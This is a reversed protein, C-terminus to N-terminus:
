ATNDTPEDTNNNEVTDGVKMKRYVKIDTGFMKNAREFCSNILDITNDITGTSNTEQLQTEEASVREKKLNMNDAIGCKQKFESLYYQRLQILESIQKDSKSIPNVQIKDVVSGKVKLLSEGSEIKKIAVDVSDFTPTDPCDIFALVRSNKAIAILSKDINSLIEGYLLVDNYFGIDKNFVYAINNSYIMVANNEDFTKNLNHYYPNNVLYESTVENKNYKGGNNFRMINLENDYDFMVVRGFMLLIFKTYNEDISPPLGRIEIENLLM